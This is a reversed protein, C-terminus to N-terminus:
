VCLYLASSNSKRAVPHFPLSSLYLLLCLLSSFSLFFIWRIFLLLAVLNKPIFLNPLSFLFSFLCSRNCVTGNKIM